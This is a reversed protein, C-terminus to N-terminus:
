KNHPIYTQQSVYKYRFDSTSLLLFAYFLFAPSQFTYQISLKKTIYEQNIEVDGYHGQLLVTDKKDFDFTKFHYLIDRGNCSINYFVIGSHRIRIHRVSKTVKRSRGRKVNPATFVVDAQCHRNLHIQVIERVSM